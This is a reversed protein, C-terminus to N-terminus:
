KKIILNHSKEILDMIIKDKVTEDLIISVWYKKNMHYAPYFHPQEILIQIDDPNLKLNIVEILGKKNKQLKSRDVDLIACYWKKTQPNRFIGSGQFKEWLFEPYDGYKEIILNTIRNSQPYIYYQKIFCKQRIRELISKYEERIEGVYVGQSNKIRLPLYEDNNELDIVKGSIKGSKDTEIIAKFLGGKFTTEYIYKNKIFAFGFEKLRDFDPNYREFIKEELEM